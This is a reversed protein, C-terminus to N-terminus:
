LPTELALAREFKSLPEPKLKWEDRLCTVISALDDETGQPKLEVEVELYAQERNGAKVHV